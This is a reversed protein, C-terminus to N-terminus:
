LIFFLTNEWRPCTVDMMRLILIGAVVGTTLFNDFFKVINIGAVGNIM